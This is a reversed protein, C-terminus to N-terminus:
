TANQTNVNGAGKERALKKLAGAQVSTHTDAAKSNAERLNKCEMEARRLQNGIRAEAAKKIREQEPKDDLQSLSTRKSPNPTASSISKARKCAKRPVKKVRFAGDERHVGLWEGDPYVKKVEGYFAHAFSGPFGPAFWSKEDIKASFGSWFFSVCLSGGL